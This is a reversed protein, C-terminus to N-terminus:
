VGLPAPTIQRSRHVYMWSSVILKQSSQGRVGQGPARGRIGAPPEVWLGGNYARAGASAVPKLRGLTLKRAVDRSVPCLHSVSISVIRICKPSKHQTTSDQTTTFLNFTCHLLMLDQKALSSRFSFSAAFLPAPLLFLATYLNVFFNAKRLGCM